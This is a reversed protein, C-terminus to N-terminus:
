AGEEVQARKAVPAGEEGEQQLVLGSQGNKFGKLRKTLSDGLVEVRHGGIFEAAKKKRLM